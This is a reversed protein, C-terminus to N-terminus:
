GAADSRIRERRELAAADEESVEFVEAMEGCHRCPHTMFGGQGLHIWLYHERSRIRLVDLNEDYVGLLNGCKRCTWPTDHETETAIASPDEGKALQSVAKKLSRNEHDLSQVKRRLETMEQQLDPDATAVRRRAM